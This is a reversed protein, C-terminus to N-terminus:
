LSLRLATALYDFTAKTASKRQKAQVKMNDNNPVATADEDNLDPIKLCDFSPTVRLMAARSPPHSSFLSTADMAAAAMM